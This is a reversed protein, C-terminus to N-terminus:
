QAIGAIVPAAPAIKGSTPNAREMVVFEALCLATLSVRLAISRAIEAIRPVTPAIKESTPKVRGTV